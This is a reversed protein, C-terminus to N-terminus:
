DVLFKYSKSFTVDGGDAIKVESKISFSFRVGIKGSNDLNYRKEEKVM